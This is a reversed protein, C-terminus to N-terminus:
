GTGVHGLLCAAAPPAPEGTAAQVRHDGGHGMAGGVVRASARQALCGEAKM